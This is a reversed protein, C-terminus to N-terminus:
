ESNIRQLPFSLLEWDGTHENPKHEFREITTWSHQNPENVAERTWGQNLQQGRQGLGLQNPWTKRGLVTCDVCFVPYQAILVIDLFYSHLSNAWTTIKDWVLSSNINNLIHLYNLIVKQTCIYETMSFNDPLILGVHIDIFWDVKSYSCVPVIIGPSGTLSGCVQCGLCSPSPCSM